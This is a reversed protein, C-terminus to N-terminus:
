EGKAKAIAARAAAIETTRNLNTNDDEFRDEMGMDAIANHFDSAFSTLAELAALLDPAAAILKANALEQGGCDGNCFTDAIGVGTHNVTADISYCGTVSDAGEDL